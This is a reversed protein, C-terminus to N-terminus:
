GCCSFHKSQKLSRSLQLLRRKPCILIMLLQCNIDTSLSHSGFIACYVHWAHELTATKPQTTLTCEGDDVAVWGGVKIGFRLGFLLIVSSPTEHILWCDCILRFWPTYTRERAIWQNVSLTTSHSLYHQKEFNHSAFQYSANPVHWEIQSRLM